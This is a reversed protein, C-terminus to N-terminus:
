LGEHLDLREIAEDRMLDIGHYDIGSLTWGDLRDGSRLWAGEPSSPSSLLARYGNRDKVIGQLTLSELGTRTMASSVIKPSEVLPRRTSRFIPRSYADDQPSLAVPRTMASLEIDAPVRQPDSRSAADVPRFVRTLESEIYLGSAGLLGALILGQRLRWSFDNVVADRSGAPGM